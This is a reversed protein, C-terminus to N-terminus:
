SSIGPGRSSGTTTYQALMSRARADRPEGQAQGPERVDAVEVAVHRAPLLTAQRDLRRGRRRLLREEFARSLRPRQRRRALPWWRRVGSSPKEAGSTGAQLVGASFLRQLGELDAFIKRIEHDNRDQADWGDMLESWDNVVHREFDNACRSLLAERRYPYPLCGFSKDITIFTSFMREFIFPYYPAVTCHPAHSFFLKQEDEPLGAIATTLAGVFAMFKRWFRENAVWFNGYLLTDRTNRPLCGTKIDLGAAKFLFDARDMLGSQWYEGQEWANFHLYQLQPFPNIFYADYGPNDNIWQIFETGRLKCKDYFKPSVWGFYPSHAGQWTGEDFFRQM